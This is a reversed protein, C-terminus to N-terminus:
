KLVGAAVADSVLATLLLAIGLLKADTRDLPRLGLRKVADGGRRRRLPPGRGRSAYRLSELFSVMSARADDGGDSERWGEKSGDPWIAFSQTGNVGTASVPSVLADLGCAYTHALSVHEERGTVIIAHHQMLGM